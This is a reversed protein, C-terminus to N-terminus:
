RESSLRVCHVRDATAGQDEEGAQDRCDNEADPERNCETTTGAFLVVLLRASAGMDAWRLPEGFSRPDPM